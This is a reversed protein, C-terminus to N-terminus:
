KLILNNVPVVKFKSPAVVGEQASWMSKLLAGFNEAVLGKSGMTNTRNIHRRFSGDLFYRTLPVTASLCQLTSNMFCTNGLNKLGSMGFATSGMTPVNEKIPVLPQTDAVAISHTMKPPLIPAASPELHPTYYRQTVPSFSPSSSRRPQANTRIPEVAHKPAVPDPIYAAPPPSTPLYPTSLNMPQTPYVGHQYISQSPISQQAYTLQTKQQTQNIMSQQLPQQLIPQQFPIMNYKEQTGNTMPQFQIPQSYPQNISYAVETQVSTPPIPPPYSSAVDVQVQAVKSPEDTFSPQLIQSGAPSATGLKPKPKPPLPPPPKKGNIEAGKPVGLLPYSISQTNTDEASKTTKPSGSDGVNSTKRESMMSFGHYPEFNIGSNRQPSDETNSKM